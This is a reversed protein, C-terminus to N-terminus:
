CSRPPTPAGDAPSRGFGALWPRIALASIDIVTHVLMALWLAGTSLYLATLAVVALAVGVRGPWSQYRHIAVFVAAALAFGALASGTVRAALLPITLRFALEETVGAALAVAVAPLLERRGRAAYPAAADISNPSGRRHARWIRVWVLLLGLTLGVLLPPLLNAATYRPLQAALAAFERPLSGLADPRDLM